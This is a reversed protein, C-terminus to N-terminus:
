LCAVQSSSEGHRRAFSVLMAQHVTKRWVTELAMGALAMCSSGSSRWFCWQHFDLFHAYKLRLRRKM